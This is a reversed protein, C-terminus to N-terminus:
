MWEGITFLWTVIMWSILYIGIAQDFEPSLSGDALTYAQVVGLAPLFLGGDSSSMERLKM